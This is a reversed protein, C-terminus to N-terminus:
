KEPSTGINYGNDLKVVAMGDRETIYTGTLATGGSAYRM